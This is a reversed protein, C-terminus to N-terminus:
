RLWGKRKIYLLPLLAALLRQIITATFGHEWALEPMVAFNMGSLDGRLHAAPVRGHHDLGAAKKSARVTTSGTDVMADPLGGRDVHAPM